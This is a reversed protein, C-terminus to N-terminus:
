WRTDTHLTKAIPFRVAGDPTRGFYQVTVQKGIYSETNELVHRAYSQSGKLTAKGESGDHDRFFIRKAYGAWNGKGEEIRTITFEEDDFDKRKLLSNSRKQDYPGNLRIIGGEYGQTLFEGYAEDVEAESAVQKTHVIQIVGEHKRHYCLKILTDLRVNFPENLLGPFDYLHYQVMKRSLELDEPKVKTKRCMSVIANFDEKLDHNYLEGDLVAHPHEAFIPALIEMIHPVAVIPKGTRSFLGDRTAICRIGDLKPQVFVPENYDIKSARKEWKAALMPKFIKAINIDEVKEHYDVDLKKTYHSKVESLAQEEGTTENIFGINKPEAVTWESTVQQGDQLGAVTRYRDGEIEMRWERIKGKSDLKYITRHPQM